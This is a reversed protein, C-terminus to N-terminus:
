RVARRPGVLAAVALTGALFHGTEFAGVEPENEPVQAVARWSSQWAVEM